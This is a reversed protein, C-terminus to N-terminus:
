WYKDNNIGILTLHNSYIPVRIGNVVINLIKM